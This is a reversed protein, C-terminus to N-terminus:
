RAGGPIRVSMVGDAFSRGWALATLQHRFVAANERLDEVTVQDIGAALLLEADEARGGTIVGYREHLLTLFERFSLECDKPVISALVAEMLVGDLCYFKRTGGQPRLFGVRVGLGRYFDTPDGKLLKFTVDTLAQALAGLTGEKDLYARFLLSLEQQHKATENTNPTTVERILRNCQKVTPDAGLRDAVAEM